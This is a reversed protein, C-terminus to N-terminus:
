KVMNRFDQESIIKTGYKTAKKTKNSQSTPDAQVLFGLGQCVDDKVIGGNKVVLAQLDNKQVSFTGTFCFSSGSLAGDSSQPKVPESKEIMLVKALGRILKENEKIESVVENSRSSGWGYMTSLTTAELEFIRDISEIQMEAVLQEALRMGLSSLGIAGLLEAITTKITKGIEKMVKLTMAEGLGSDAALQSPRCTYLEVPTWGNEALRKISKDGLFLINRKIIWHELKRFERGPCDKNPCFVMAGDIVTKHSCIPCYEPLTIPRRNNGKKVVSVIKPIVDGSRVVMVEDGIAAELRAIEDWNCLSISTITTGGVVVPEVKAVPTILGTHGVSYEVDSLVTPKGTPKFKWAVAWRPCGDHVGRLRQTLMDNVKVVMGDMEYPFEDRSKELDIFEDCVGRVDKVVAYSVTKVGFDKILELKEVETTFGGKPLEIDFAFFEVHEAGVADTRRVLGAVANRPNATDPFYSQWSGKSLEAEGRISCDIPRTLQKTVMAKSMTHTVDEGIVGDGRTIAQVLKGHKYKLEISVGDMKPQCVYEGKTQGDHESWHRFEGDNNANNLSGMPIEHEVKSLPSTKRPSAGVESLIPHSPNLERLRRKLQDFDADSMVPVGNYYEDIAVRLSEAIAQEETKM